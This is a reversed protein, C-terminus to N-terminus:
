EYINHKKMEDTHKIKTETENIGKQRAKQIKKCKDQKRLREMNNAEGRTKRVVQTKKRSKKGM